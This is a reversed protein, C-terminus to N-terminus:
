SFIGSTLLYIFIVNSDLIYLVLPNLQENRVNYVIIAVIQPDTSHDMYKVKIFFSM